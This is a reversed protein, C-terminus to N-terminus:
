HWRNRRYTEYDAMSLQRSSNGFRVWLEDGKAGPPRSFVPRSAAAVDVRCVDRDRIREFSIKVNSLAPRGLYTSLLDLLRLQFGDDNQKQLMRFDSDLGLPVGDDDVGILLTGGSANMFAAVTEVIRREIREDREATHINFMLSSKFELSETEGRDILESAPVKTVSTETTPRTVRALESRLYELRWGLFDHFRDTWLPGDHAAPLGHSALVRDLDRGLDAEIEALYKSPARKGIRIDTIKDILTHNLISDHVKDANTTKLYARPFIHHDDVSESLLRSPTLPVARHFDLPQRSMLLAMTSRYLGRQRGTVSRWTEPDFQFNRVTPHEEGGGLWARLLPTDAEARSNPSSDYDGAFSACWFWRQLKLRRAGVQPGSAEDVHRWAAGLTPLMPAYPLWQSSLVGCEDRLMLLGQAIGRVAAPWERVLINVELDAVIGRQPKRGERLAIAQLVYYPDIEFEDLIPFEDVASAWMERLRHGHRFARATILEFVSLKIGTRNLTEFITCVAETPTKEPLTTVPFRYIRIPEIVSRDIKTLYRRLERADTEGQAERHEVVDDKWTMFDRVRALPFMLAGAQGEIDALAMARPEALALMAADVDGGTMLVKLDIFYRHTGLGNFAQYLSSLRQQGDLVLLSPKHGDLDPAGEVARPLFVTSGGRLFLLNGAPFGRAISVLLERTAGPDWVFSRQFDPLALDRNHIQDLLFILPKPDADFESSSAPLPPEELKEPLSHFTEPAAERTAVVVQSSPGPPTDAAIGRLIALLPQDPGTRGVAWQAKAFLHEQTESPLDAGNIRGFWRVQRVHGRDGIPPHDTRDEYRGIVEGCLVTGGPEPTLIYTGERIQSELKAILAKRLRVAVLGQSRFAESYRGDRGARIMWIEPERERDPLLGNVDSHAGTEAKARNRQWAVYAGHAQAMFASPALALAAVGADTITWRGGSKVLWGAQAIDGSYWRVNTDWRIEGSNNKSLEYPSLPVRESVGRLVDAVKMPGKEKLLALVAQLLAGTRESTISGEPSTAQPGLEEEKRPELILKSLRAEQESSVPYNTASAFLINPLKALVPDQLIRRRGLRPALVEDIGLRVRLRKGSLKGPQIEFQAEAPDEEIESPETLVTALAVVGARKGTEWIFVKDGVRLRDAYQNALWTQESLVALAGGIDYIEPNAQFIWWTM